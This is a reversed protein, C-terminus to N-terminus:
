NFGKPIKWLRCPKVLWHLPVDNWGAGFHGSFSGGSSKARPNRGFIKYWFSDLESASPRSREMKKVIAHGDAFSMGGCMVHYTAPWDVLLLSTTLNAQPRVRFEADNITNQDEDMMVFLNVPQNMMSLKTFVTFGNDNGGPLIRVPAPGNMYCNM